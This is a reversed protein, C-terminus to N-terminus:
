QLSIPYERMAVDIAVLDYPPDFQRRNKIPILVALIGMKIPLDKVPTDICVKTVCAWEYWQQQEPTMSTPDRKEPEPKKILWGEELCKM